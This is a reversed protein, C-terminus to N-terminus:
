WSLRCSQETLWFLVESAGSESLVAASDRLERPVSPSLAATGTSSAKNMSNNAPDALRLLAKLDTPICTIGTSVFSAGCTFITLSLKNCLPGQLQDEPQKFGPINDHDM